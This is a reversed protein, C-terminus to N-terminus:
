GVPQKILWHLPSLIMPHYGGEAVTYFWIDIDLGNQHSSHGYPMKGGIPQSLDGILIRQGYTDVLTNAVQDIMGLTIPQTYFRNRFRRISVYGRGEEPLVQAGQQCGNAYSGIAQPAQLTPHTVRSWPNEEAAFVAQCAILALLLFGRGM